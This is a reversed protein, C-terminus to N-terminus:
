YHQKNNWSHVATGPLYYVLIGNAHRLRLDSTVKAYTTSTFSGPATGSLGDPSAANVAVGWEGLFVPASAVIDCVRCVEM